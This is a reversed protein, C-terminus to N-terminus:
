GAVYIKGVLDQIAQQDEYIFSISICWYGYKVISFKEEYKLM